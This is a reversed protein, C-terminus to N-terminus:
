RTLPSMAIWDSIERNTMPSTRERTILMKGGYDTSSWTERPSSVRPLSEGAALRHRVSRVPVPEDPHIMGRCTCGCIARDDVTHATEPVWVTPIRPSAWCM